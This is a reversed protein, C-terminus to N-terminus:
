VNKYSNSLSKSCIVVLVLELIGWPCTMSIFVCEWDKTKVIKTDHYAEVKLCKERKNTTGHNKEEHAYASAKVLVFWALIQGEVKKRLLKLRM